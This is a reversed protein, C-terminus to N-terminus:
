RLRRIGIKQGFRAERQDNKSLLRGVPQFDMQGVLVNQMYNLFGYGIQAFGTGKLAAAILGDAGGLRWEEM